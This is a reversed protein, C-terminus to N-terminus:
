RAPTLRILAGDEADTLIMVAGDQAVDVDCIRAQGQLYRAQGTVRGDELTLRVLGGILLDGRWDPFLAGEYFAMGGPAIVPDWYYVPQEMGERATLGEGIPAGSYDRGYTIVPWGHNLGAQPRNLEDGGRPGQEATWLSGDPALADVEPLGAIPESVTGNEAIQRLRGPRETVFWRGDPLQEMGWPHVLGKAIVQQELRLDDAIVPARTQGAFASQQGPANPPAANFDQAMAPASLALVTSIALPM